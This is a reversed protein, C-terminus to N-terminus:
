AVAEESKEARHGTLHLFAEDLTPRRVGVDEVTVDAAQLARLV